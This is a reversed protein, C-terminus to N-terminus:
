IAAVTHCRSVRGLIGLSVSMLLLMSGRMFFGAATMGPAQCATTALPAQCREHQFDRHGVDEVAEVADGPL